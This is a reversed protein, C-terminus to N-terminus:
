PLVASLGAVVKQRLYPLAEPPTLGMRTVHAVLRNQHYLFDETTEVRQEETSGGSSRGGEAGQIDAHTVSTDDGATRVTSVGGEMREGIRIDVAIDYEVMKNRNALINAAAAGIVAGGAAGLGTNGNGVNHGIVAGTVGGLAGGTLLAGGADKNRNEGFFRVDATLVYHAEDRNRTVTYGAQEVGTRIEEYLDGLPSGSSNKFRLYVVMEGSGPMGLRPMPSMWKSGGQLTMKDPDVVGVTKQYARDMTACGTLLVGMALCHILARGMRRGNEYLGNRM